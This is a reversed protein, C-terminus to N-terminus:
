ASYLIILSGVVDGHIIIPMGRAHVVRDMLSLSRDVIEGDAALDSLFNMMESQLHTDGVAETIHVGTPNEHLPIVEYVYETVGLIVNDRDVAIMPREELLFMQEIIPQLFSAESSSAAQNSNLGQNVKSFLRNISEILPNLATFSQFKEVKQATGTYLLNVEETLRKLTKLLLKRLSWAVIAMLLLVIALTQWRLSQMKQLAQFVKTPQYDLIVFGVLRDFNEGQYQYRIPAALRCSRKESNILMSDCDSVLRNKEEATKVFIDREFTKGLPCVVKSDVDLVLVQTVGIENRTLEDQFSLCDVLHFKEAAMETKFRNALDLASAKATRIGEQLLRKESEQFYPFSIILHSLVAFGLLGLFLKITFDLRQWKTNVIKLISKREGLGLERKTVSAEKSEENQQNAWELNPDLNEADLPTEAWPDDSAVFGDKGIEEPAAEDSEVDFRFEGIDIRDGASFYAEKIPNKNVRIGNRSDLDKIVWAGAESKIEAHESSVSSSDLRICNLGEVDRGLLYSEGDELEFSEGALPGKICNLRM